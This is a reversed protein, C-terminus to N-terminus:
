HALAAVTSVSFLPDLGWLAIPVIKIDTTQSRRNSSSRENGRTFEDVVVISSSACHEVVKSSQSIEEKNEM